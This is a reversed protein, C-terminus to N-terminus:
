SEEFFNVFYSFINSNLLLYFQQHFLGHLVLFHNLM